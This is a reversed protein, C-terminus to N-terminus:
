WEDVWVTKINVFEKIGYASLERGFGSHKIGGFPLRPDSVVIHNVFCNGAELREAAIQEGTLFDTTLISAGLGYQSANALEIAHELDEAMVVAAVPGFTEEDFCTMGPRVGALVTPPYYAGAGQPLYGGTKLQAGQQLTTLVQHHLQDRLDKRAMPGIFNTEDFPNGMKKEAMAATFLETFQSYVKKLVIFRKAAICTEGNNQLRATVAFEVAKDLDVQDTIICADSGGLEMVCKKLAGGATAAVERGTSESGTLTVAAVKKNKIVTAVQAGSINLNTFSNEPFGALLFLEELAQACGQVNSAHKLLATNGAMLAPAAFRIAQYFPFNWPMIALLVGLPNYTIYSLKANTSVVENRLLAEGQEAFYRLVWACKEVEKVAATYMKGMEESIIRAYLAKQKELIAAAENLLVAREKFRLKRVQLFRQHAKDILQLIKGEELRSYEAIITDTAPNISVASSMSNFKIEFVDRHLVLIAFSSSLQGKSKNRKYLLNCFM